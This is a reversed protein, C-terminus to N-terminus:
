AATLRSLLRVFLAFNPKWTKLVEERVAKLTPGALKRTTHLKLFAPHRNILTAPPILARTEDILRRELETYKEALSSSDSSSSSIITRSQSAALNTPMPSVIPLPVDAEPYRQKDPVVVRLENGQQMSSESSSVPSAIASLPDSFTATAASPPLPQNQAALLTPTDPRSDPLPVSAPSAPRLPALRPSPAHSPDPTPTPSLSDGLAVRPRLRVSGGSEM